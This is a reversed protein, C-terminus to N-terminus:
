LCEKSKRRFWEVLSFTLFFIIFIMVSQVIIRIILDQWTPMSPLSGGAPFVNDIVSQPILEWFADEGDPALHNWFKMNDLHRYIASIVMIVVTVLSTLSASKLVKKIM